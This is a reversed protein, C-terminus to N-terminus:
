AITAALKSKRSQVHCLNLHRLNLGECQKQTHSKAM